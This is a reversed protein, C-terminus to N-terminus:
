KSTKGPANEPETQPRDKLPLGMDVIPKSRLNLLANWIASLASNTRYMNFLTGAGGGSAALILALFRPFLSYFTNDRAWGDVSILNPRRSFM